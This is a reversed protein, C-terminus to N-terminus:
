ITGVPETTPASTVTRWRGTALGPLVVRVRHTGVGLYVLGRAVHSARVRLYGRMIVGAPTLEQVQVRPLSAAPATTIVPASVWVVGNEIDLWTGLGFRASVPAPDPEPAEPSTASTSVTAAQSPAALSVGAVLAALTALMALVIPRYGKPLVQEARPPPTKTDNM